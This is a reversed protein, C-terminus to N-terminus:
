WATAGDCDHRNRIKVRPGGSPVLIIFYRTPRINAADILKFDYASLFMALILTMQRKAFQEGLCRRDGLGYPFYAYSPVSDRLFRDPDFQCPNSFVTQNYHALYMCPAAHLGSNYATGQIHTTQTSVRSLHMVVPHLRMSEQLAANLYTYQETPADDPIGDLETFIKEKSRPHQGIDSILWAMTAASTDFGFLLLSITEAIIVEDRMDQTGTRSVFDCLIGQGRHRGARIAAIRDQIFRSLGEKGAIFKGWPTFSGANIQLGRMYLVLPNHFSSVLCMVMSTVRLKEDASLRGFMVEVIIDLTIRRFLVSIDHDAEPRLTAFIERCVNRTLQDYRTVAHPSFYPLLTQRQRKHRCGETAILADLGLVPRLARIGRGGVFHKNNIVRRILAPDGTLLLRDVGPLPVYFTQGLRQGAKAIFETPSYLWQMANLLRHGQHTKIISDCALTM